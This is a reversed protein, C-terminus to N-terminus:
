LMFELIKVLKIIKEELSLLFSILINIYNLTIKINKQYAKYVMGGKILIFYKRFNGM